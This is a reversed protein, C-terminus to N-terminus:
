ALLASHGERPPTLGVWLVVVYKAATAQSSYIQKPTAANARCICKFDHENRDHNEQCKANLTIYSNGHTRCSREVLPVLLLQANM